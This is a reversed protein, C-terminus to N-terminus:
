NLSACVRYVDRLSVLRLSSSRSTHSFAGAQIPERRRRARARRPRGLRGRARRTSSARESQAHREKGRGQSRRRAACRRGLRARRRPGGAEGRDDVDAAAGEVRVRRALHRVPRRPLLAWVLLGATCQSVRPQGEQRGSRGRRAEGRLRRRRAACCGRCVGAHTRRSRHVRAHGRALGPHAPPAVHTKEEGGREGGRRDVRPQSRAEACCSPPGLCTPMEDYPADRRRDGRGRSTRRAGQRSASRRKM